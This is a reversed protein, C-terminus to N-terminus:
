RMKIREAITPLPSGITMQRIPTGNKQRLIEESIRVNVNTDWTDKRVTVIDGLRYDVGFVILQESSPLDGTASRIPRVKDLEKQALDLKKQRYQANTLTTTTGDANSVEKGGSDTMCHEFRRYGTSATEGAELVAKDADAIYMVNKSDATSQTYEIGNMTELTEDFLIPVHGGTNGISRDTGAYVHLLMTRATSDWLVQMTLGSAQCIDEFNTLYSDASAEVTIDDGLQSPIDWSFRPFVRKDTSWIAQLMQVMVAGSYGQYIKPLPLVRQNLLWKLCHGRVAVVEDGTAETRKTCTTVIYATEDGQPWVVADTCLLRATENLKCEFESEGPKIAKHAISLGSYNDIVGIPVHEYPSYIWLQM